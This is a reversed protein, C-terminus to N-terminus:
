QTDALAAGANRGASPLGGPIVAVQLRDRFQMVIEPTGDTSGADAVLIKTNPM